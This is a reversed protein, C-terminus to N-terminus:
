AIGDLHRILINQSVTSDHQVRINLFHAIPVGKSNRSTDTWQHVYTRFSNSSRIAINRNIGNIENLKSDTDDKPGFPCRCSCVAHVNAVCVFDRVHLRPEVFLCNLLLRDDIHVWTLIRETMYDDIDDFREFPFCESNQILRRCPQLLDISQELQIIQLFFRNHHTLQHVFEAIQIEPSRQRFELAGALSINHYSTRQFQQRPEQIVHTAQIWLYRFHDM